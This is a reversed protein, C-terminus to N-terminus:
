KITFDGIEKEVMKVYHEDFPEWLEVINGLIDEIQAFKGYDYVKIEQVIKVNKTVLAELLADLDDVTFNLTSKGPEKNDFTILTFKNPSLFNIGYETTALGLIDHYWNLLKQTDGSINLFVGGIGTIKPM